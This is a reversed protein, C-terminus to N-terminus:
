KNFFIVIPLSKNIKNKEECIKEYDGVKISASKTKYCYSVQFSNSTLQEIKEDFYFAENDHKTYKDQIFMDKPFHFTVKYNMNLPYSLGYDYKRESCAANTFEPYLTSPEFKFLWFGASNKDNQKDGDQWFGDIEYKYVTTFVNNVIDDNLVIDDTKNVTPYYLKLEDTIYKSYDESSNQEFMIRRIDAEQGSRMSKIVLKAPDTFSKITYEDTIYINSNIPQITMKTMTDSPEGVVLAKGFDTISLNKYSGGQQTMTPDVWYTTDNYKFKVICHDFIENSPYLVDTNQKLYTNVLVPYADKIGIKKLLSVM